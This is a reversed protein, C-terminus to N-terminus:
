QEVVELLVATQAERGRDDQLTLRLVFQGPGLASTALTWVRPQAAMARDPLEVTRDLRPTGTLDDQRYVTLRVAGRTFAPPIVVGASVTVVDGSVFTRTTTPPGPLNLAAATTGATIALAAPLSTLAVGGIWLRDADFAPVDIDTFVLGAQRGGAVQGSVRFSYPGPALDLSSIWRLGTRRVAALQDPTLKFTLTTTRNNDSRARSDITRYAFELQLHHQGDVDAFPLDRGPVEVVVDVTPKGPEGPRPIAQVRLPLGEAPLSSVLADALVPTVDAPRPGPNAPRGVVYVSRASIRLDPRAPVRVRISRLEARGHAV